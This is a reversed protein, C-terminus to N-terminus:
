RIKREKSYRKLLSIVTLNIHLLPIVALTKNSTKPNFIKWRNAKICQLIPLSYLYPPSFSIIGEKFGKLQRTHLYNWAPRSWLAGQQRRKSVTEGQQRSSHLPTMMGAAKIQLNRHFSFFVWLLLLLTSPLEKNREEETRGACAPRQYSFSKWM